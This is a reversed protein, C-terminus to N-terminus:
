RGAPDLFGVRALQADTLGTADSGFSVSGGDPRWRAIVLSAEPSWTQDHSDACALSGQGEAGLDVFSRTGLRLPGVRDAHGRLWLRAENPGVTALPAGDDVQDDNDWALIAQNAGGGLTVASPVACVGAPKALMLMGRRLTLGGGFTNAARGALYSPTTQWVGQGGGDWVLAGGGTVAGRVTQVNGGGTDFTLTHRGLDIDGDFAAWKWGFTTPGTLRYSSGEPGADAACEFSGQLAITVAQASAALWAAALVTLVAHRRHM